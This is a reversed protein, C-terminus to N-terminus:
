FNRRCNYGATFRDGADLMEFDTVQLQALDRPALLGAWKHATYTDTQAILTSSGADALLMGYRQLARAVIRAAENPLSALPYDARLRFRAGVPPATPPGSPAGAHTAPRVYTGARIREAPLAFRLAHDISGAAIEDATFLLPAIPFGASDASTCQEGLGNKPYLRDLDWVVLCGGYFAGGAGGAINARYMEFLRHTARHVVLLHCDGLLSQCQYGPEGEVAGTLPIPMPVLDCDPYYFDSTPTFSYFFASDGAELVNMRFDVRMEGLGWGGLAALTAIVQSSEVDVPDQTVNRAWESGAPFYRDNGGPPPPPPPPSPPLTPGLRYIESPLLNDIGHGGVLVVHEGGSADSLPFAGHRQRPRALRRALTAFQGTGPDYIEATDLAAVGEFFAAGGTVLVRGDGLLTTTHQQRPVAMRGTTEFHNTLPDYSEASTLATLGRDLTGDGGTILVRGGPLLAAGHLFRAANMGGPVLTFRGTQPDYREASAVAGAATVGGAVLVQGDALLTATHLQRPENLQAAATCRGTRPDYIEANSLYRRHVGDYGGVLLVRGDRLLTASHGQRPSTLTGAPTFAGRSPDFAELTDITRVGDQEGGAILVLGSGLLTATHLARAKALDGTRTIQLTTPNFLEAVASVPRAYDIFPQSVGGAILARGDPLRTITPAVHAAALTPDLPPLVTVTVAATVAPVAASRATVVYDGPTIPATYVGASTIQGGTATWTVRTDTLGTLTASFAQTTGGTLVPHTPTITLDALTVRFLEATLAMATNHGGAVLVDGNDLLTASHRQRATTLSGASQFQGTAPDYLEASALAELAQFQATGGIVLVRGNRLRTATHLQRATALSGTLTFTGTAPDFLECPTLSALNAGGTVLVRGDDLLTARHLLRARQLSGVRTFTGSRPDYIEATAVPGATDYGGAVLVRGDNLMTATALQRARSMSGTARFQGTSPTYREATETFRGLKSSYGGVLLVDGDPLLAAAHAQRPLTLRGPTVAAGSSPRYLEASDLSQLGEIEGGAILVTGDALRTATHLGRATIMTGASQFSGRAPDYLEMRAGVPRVYDRFAQTTGGTILVRGDLLLTETHVAHGVALAGTPTVSTLLIAQPPAADEPETGPDGRGCGGTVLTALGGLAALLIFFTRSSSPSTDM